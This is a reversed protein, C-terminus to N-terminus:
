FIIYVLFRGADMLVMSGDKVIQNNNIYHIVNANDGGAVVPLYALYEAGRMRCEYDVTAFIQHESMGPKAMQITKAIAESGIRCSERMLEVETQSKILRIKHLLPKPSSINKLGTTKLIQALKRHVDLQIIDRNEYWLNCNNKHENIFSLIFMELDSVPYSGDVGFFKAAEAAGTRPGDWLETKEDKNQVFIASSHSDGNVTIVLTCDPEQCGSFYMFDTNQRFVYPIKDSM